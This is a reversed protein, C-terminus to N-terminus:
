NSPKNKNKYYVIRLRLLRNSYNLSEAIEKIQKKKCIKMTNKTTKKQNSNIKIQKIM